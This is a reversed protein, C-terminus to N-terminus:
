LLDRYKESIPSDPDNRTYILVSVPAKNLDPM